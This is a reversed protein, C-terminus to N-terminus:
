LSVVVTRFCCKVLQFWFYYLVTVILFKTIISTSLFKVVCINFCFICLISYWCKRLIWISIRFLSTGIFCFYRLSFWPLNIFLSQLCDHFIRLLLNKRLIVSIVCFVPFKQTFKKFFALFYCKTSRSTFGTNSLLFNQCIILDCNDFWM